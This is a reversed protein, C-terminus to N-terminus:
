PTYGPKMSYGSNRVPVSGHTQVEARGVSSVDRDTVMVGMM